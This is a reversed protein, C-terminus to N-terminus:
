EASPTAHEHSCMYVTANKDRSEIAELLAPADIHYSKQRMQELLIQLNHQKLFSELADVCFEEVAGPHAHVM